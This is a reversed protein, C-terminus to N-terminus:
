GETSERRSIVYSNPTAPSRPPHRELVNRLSFSFRCSVPPLASWRDTREKSQSCTRPPWNISDHPRRQRCDPLKALAAYGRSRAFGKEEPNEKMCTRITWQCLFFSLMECNDWEAVVFIMQEERACWYWVTDLALSLNCYSSVTNSGTHREVTPSRARSIVPFLRSGRNQPLTLFLCLALYSINYTSNCHSCVAFNPSPHPPPVNLEPM